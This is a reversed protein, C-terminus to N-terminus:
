SALRKALKVAALHLGNNFFRRIVYGRAVSIVTFFAVVTWHQGHSYEIGAMAAAVPWGVFSIAFGIATNM